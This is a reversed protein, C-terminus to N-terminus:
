RWRREGELVAQARVDDLADSGAAGGDEGARPAVTFGGGQEAVADARLERVYEGLLDRAGLRSDCARLFSSKKEPLIRFQPM